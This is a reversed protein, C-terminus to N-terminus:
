DLPIVVQLSKKEFTMKWKKLKIIGKMDTAWDIGLLTLYTNSDDFIDIVQFDTQTSIGNIDVTVGQLRGMQLIEQENAM